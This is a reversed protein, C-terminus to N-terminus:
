LEDPLGSYADVLFHADALGPYAEAYTSDLSIAYRFQDIADHLSQGTRQSFLYRARLYADHAEPISTGPAVLPTSNGGAFVVRLRDTVARAVEDEIAFIDDAPRDIQESWLVAGSAAEVLRSRIRVVDSAQELGCELVTTM